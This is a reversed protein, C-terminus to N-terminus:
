HERRSFVFVADGAIRCPGLSVPVAVHLEIAAIAGLVRAMEPTITPAGGEARVPTEVVASAVAPVTAPEPIHEVEEAEGLLEQEWSRKPARKRDDEVPPEDLLGLQARCWDDSVNHHMLFFNLVAAYASLSLGTVAKCKEDAKVLEERRVRAVPYFWDDSRRGTGRRLFGASPCKEYAEQFSEELPKRSNGALLGGLNVTCCENFIFIKPCSVAIRNAM